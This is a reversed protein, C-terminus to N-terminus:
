ARAEGITSASTTALPGLWRLTAVVQAIADGGFRELLGRPLDDAEVPRAFRSRAAKWFATHVFADRWWRHWRALTRASVGLLAHLRTVRWPTPGQRLVCALLVIAGLYVKRGLFRVSAPTLRKRCRACCFSRRKEYAEPLDTPGGRPKRPYDGHHLRGPCRRCGGAQATAALEQDIAILADFLTADTFLNTYL